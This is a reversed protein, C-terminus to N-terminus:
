GPTPEMDPAWSFFKGEFMTLDVEPYSYTNFVKHSETSTNAVEVEARETNVVTQTTSNTKAVESLIDAYAKKCEIVITVVAKVLHILASLVSAAKILFPIM